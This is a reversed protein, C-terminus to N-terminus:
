SIKHQVTNECSQSSNTIAPPCSPKEMKHRNNTVPKLKAQEGKWVFIKGDSGHDLIFCDTSELASQTFPNEDAVLAMSM